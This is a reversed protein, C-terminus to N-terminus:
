LAVTFSTGGSLPGTVTRISSRPLFYTGTLSSQGAPLSCARIAGVDMDSLHRQPVQTRGTVLATPFSHASSFLPEAVSM